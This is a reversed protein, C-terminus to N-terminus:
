ASGSWGAILEPFRCQECIANSHDCFDRVIQLLGQQDAATKLVNRKANGLLRARALRLVSNDEAAPWAFWAKAAAEQWKANRGERARVYFWPLIVNVALDTVRTPGLLPQAKAMPKSRLTWHRSWFPDSGPNLAQLLGAVLPALKLVDSEGGIAGVVKGFWVELRKFFQPDALWHAALALRRQPHNAPRIGSMRWLKAPLILPALRDRERWWLDWMHRLYDSASARKLEAPLLGSVGLLLAQWHVADTKSERFTEALAPALEGLRQMPWANHKYGLARLLGEILAQEWGVQRSRALLQSARTDLRIRAAESLLKHRQGSDLAQLPASCRGQQEDTMPPPLEGELLRYLEALPADLRDRIVITALNEPVRETPNWVVHLVVNSFSPNRDHGHSRWGESRLDIEIDGVRAPEDDIQVMGGRFDPGAERNWFGPHLVKVTRGDTTRLQDRQIRQRAWIAQLLREAPLGDPSERFASPRGHTQRWHEYFSSIGTTVKVANEPIARRTDLM